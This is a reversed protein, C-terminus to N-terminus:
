KSLSVDHHLSGFGYDGRTIIQNGTTVGALERSTVPLGPADITGVKGAVFLSGALRFSPSQHVLLHSAAFQEGIGVGGGCVKGARLIHGCGIGIEFNLYLFDHSNFRIIGHLHTLETESM